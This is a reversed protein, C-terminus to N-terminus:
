KKIQCNKKLIVCDNLLGDIVKYYQSFHYYDDRNVNYGLDEWSICNRVFMIQSQNGIRTVVAIPQKEILVFRTLIDKIITNM